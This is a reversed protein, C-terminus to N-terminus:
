PLITPLVTDSANFKKSPTTADQVVYSTAGATLGATRLAATSFTVMRDMLGDRNWDGVSTIYAAGRKSVPVGGAVNGGVVFRVNALNATTADFLGNSILLVNVVPTTTLSVKSPQVDMTVAPIEAGGFPCAGPEIAYAQIDRDYADQQWIAAIGDARFTVDDCELDEIRRPFTAFLTSTTPPKNAVWIQSGGNNGLYLNGGGAAIGSNGYGGTVNTSHAGILAGSTAYHYIPYSADNSMWLTKDAGDYALGDTCGNGTFKSQYEAPEIIGDGNPDSLDLLYIQSSSVCAWLRNLNADWALAYFGSVGNVTLTKVLHGDVPSLVDLKNTYWCSMILNTGDFAIGTQISCNTPNAGSISRVLTGPAAGVMMANMAGATRPALPVNVAMAGAFGASQSRALATPLQGANAASRSDQQADAATPPASQECASLLLLASCALALQVQPGRRRLM